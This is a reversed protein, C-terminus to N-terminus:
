EMSRPRATLMGEIPQTSRHELGSPPFLRV